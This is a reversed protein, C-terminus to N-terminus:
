SRDWTTLTGRLRVQRMKFLCALLVLLAGGAIVAVVLPSIRSVQVRFSIPAGWPRDNSTTYLQATIEVPGNANARVKVQQTHNAAPPARVVAAPNRVAVRNPASSTVRLQLGGLPQQLGNAITVPIAAAGGAMTVTGRKPLLRVSIISDDVYARVGGTYSKQDANGGGAEAVRWGTSVARLMARHVADATRAPNALVRSLTGLDPQIAAVSVVDDATLEGVRL